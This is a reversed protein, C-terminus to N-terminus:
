NLCPDDPQAVPRGDALPVLPAGRAGGMGLLGGSVAQGGPSPLGGAGLPGIPSPLGGPGLLGGPVPQGPVPQGPVAQGRVAQGPVAQGGPSPLGGRVAQSGRAHMEAEHVANEILSRPEALVQDVETRFASTYKRVEALGKGLSRAAQPLREPGLVLVAFVFVVLLKEPDINV